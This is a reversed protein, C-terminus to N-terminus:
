LHWSRAKPESALEGFYPGAQIPAPPEQASDAVSPHSALNEMAGQWGELLTRLLRAVEEFLAESKEAHARSLQRHMYAYLAALNDSYEKQVDHRLSGLLEFLVQTAKNVAQGRKLVDGSRLAALAEETSQLATEYLINVLEVPSATRVRNLLYEKQRNLANVKGAM